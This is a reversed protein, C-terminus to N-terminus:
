VVGARPWHLRKKLQGIDKDMVGHYGASELGKELHKYEVMVEFAGLMGSGIAVM